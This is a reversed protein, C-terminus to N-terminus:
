NLAKLTTHKSWKDGNVRKYWKTIQVTNLTALISTIVTTFAAFSTLLTWLNKTSKYAVINFKVPNLFHRAAGNYKSSTYNFIESRTIDKFQNNNLADKFRIFIENNKTADRWVEVSWGKETKFISAFQDDTLDNIAFKIFSDLRPAVYDVLVYPELTNKHIQLYTKNFFTSYSEITKKMRELEKPSTYEAFTKGDSKTIEFVRYEWVRDRSISVLACIGFILM